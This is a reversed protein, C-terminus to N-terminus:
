MARTSSVTTAGETVGSQGTTSDERGYYNSNIIMTQTKLQAKKEIDKDIKGTIRDHETIYRSNDSNLKEYRMQIEGWKHSRESMCDVQFYLKLLEYKYHDLDENLKLLEDVKKEYIGFWSYILKKNKVRVCLPIFLILLVVGWFLWDNEVGYKSAILSFITPLGFCAYIAWFYINNQKERLQECLLSSYNINTYVQVFDTWIMEMLRKKNM